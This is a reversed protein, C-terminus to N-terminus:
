RGIEIVKNEERDYYFNTNIDKTPEQQKQEQAPKQNSEPAYDHYEPNFTKSAIICLTFFWVIEYM